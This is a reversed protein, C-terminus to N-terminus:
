GVYVLRQNSSAEYVVKGNEKVALFSDSYSLTDFNTQLGFDNLAQRSEPSLNLMMDDSASFFVSVNEWDGLKELYPILDVTM